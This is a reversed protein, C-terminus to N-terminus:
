YNAINGEGEGVEAGGRGRGRKGMYMNINETEKPLEDNMMTKANRKAVITM